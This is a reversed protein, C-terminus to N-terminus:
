KEYITYTKSTNVLEMPHVAQLYAVTDLNVDYKDLFAAYVLQSCYFSMRTWPYMYNYNYPSYIRKKCYNSAENDQEVTLGSVTVGFCESKTINWDNNGIVVGAALAEIIKGNSGDWIIGAHGTPILNKYADPTVLIVGNRTPYWGFSDTSVIGDKAVSKDAMVPKQRAKDWEADTYAQSYVEQQEAKITDENTSAGASTPVIFLSTVLCTCIVKELLSKKKM